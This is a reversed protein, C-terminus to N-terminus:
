NYVDDLGHILGLLCIRLITVFFADVIEAGSQWENNADYCSRLFEALDGLKAYVISCSGVFIMNFRYNQEILRGMFLATSALKQVDPVKYNQAIYVGCVTGVVFSFCSKVIGM